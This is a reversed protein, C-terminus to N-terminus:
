TYPNAMKTPISHNSHSITAAGVRKRELRKRKRACWWPRLSSLGNLSILLPCLVLSSLLPLLTALLRDITEATRTHATEIINAAAAAKGTAKGLGGSSYLPRIGAALSAAVIM